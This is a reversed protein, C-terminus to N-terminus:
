YYPFHLLPRSVNHMRAGGNRQRHTYGGVDQHGALHGHQRGRPHESFDCSSNDPSKPTCLQFDPEGADVDSGFPMAFAEFDSTAENSLDLSGSNRIQPERHSVSNLRVDPARRQASGSQQPQPFQFAEGQNDGSMEPAIRAEFVDTSPDPWDPLDVPPLQAFPSGLDMIRDIDEGRSLSQREAQPGAASPPNERANRSPLWDDKPASRAANVSGCVHSTGPSSTPAGSM